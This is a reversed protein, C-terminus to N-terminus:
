SLYEFIIFLFQLCFKEVTIKSFMFSVSFMQPLQYAPQLITGNVKYWDTSFTTWAGIRTKLYEKIVNIKICITNRSELFV